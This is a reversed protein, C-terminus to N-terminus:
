GGGEIPEKLESARESTISGSHSADIISNPFSDRHNASLLTDILPSIWPGGLKEGNRGMFVSERLFPTIGTRHEIGHFLKEFTNRERSLWLAMITAFRSIRGSIKGVFFNNNSEGIGIRINEMTEETMELIRVRRIIFYFNFVTSDGLKKKENVERSDCLHRYWVDCDVNAFFINSESLFIFEQQM